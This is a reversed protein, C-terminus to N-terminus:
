YGMYEKMFSFYSTSYGDWAGHWEMAPMANLPQRMWSTCWRLLAMDYYCEFGALQGTPIETDVLVINNNYKNGLISILLSEFGPNGSGLDIICNPYNDRSYYDKPLAQSKQYVVDNLSAKMEELSGYLEEPTDTVCIHIISDEAVGEKRFTECISDRYHIITDNFLRLITYSSSKAKKYKLYDMFDSTSQALSISMAHLRNGLQLQENAPLIDDDTAKLVLVEDTSRMFDKVHSLWPIMYCETLVLLRRTYSYSYIPNITDKAWAQMEEYTAGLSSKAIFEVDLAEGSGVSDKLQYAATFVRDCYGNDGLQGPAFVVMVQLHTYDSPTPHQTNPTPDPQPANDDNCSALTVSYLLHCIVFSIVLLRSKEM